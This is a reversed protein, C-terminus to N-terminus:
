VPLWPFSSSLPCPIFEGLGGETVYTRWWPRVKFTGYGVWAAGGVPPGTNSGVPCISADKNREGNQFNLFMTQIHAKCRTPVNKGTLNRDHELTTCLMDPLSLSVM